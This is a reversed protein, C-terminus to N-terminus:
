PRETRRCDRIEFSLAHIAGDRTDLDLRGGLVRAIGQAVALRIGLRLAPDDADERVEIETGSIRITAGDLHGTCEWRIHRNRTHKVASTILLDFARILRDQDSIITPLEPLPAIRPELGRELAATRFADVVSALLIQLNVPELDPRLSGSRVRSLEVVGDILHLLHHASRGIREVPEELPTAIAGYAGDALLEQYGLIASLPSRLEHTVLDFFTERADRAHDLDHRARELERDCRELQRRAQDRESALRQASERLARLKARTRLWLAAFLGAAALAAFAVFAASM